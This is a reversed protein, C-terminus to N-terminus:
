LSRERRICKADVVVTTVKMVFYNNKLKEKQDCSVNFLWYSNYLRDGCM